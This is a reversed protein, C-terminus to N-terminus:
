KCSYLIFFVIERFLWMIRKVSFWRVPIGGGKCHLEYVFKLASKINNAYALLIHVKKKIRKFIFYNCRNYIMSVLALSFNDKDCENKRM